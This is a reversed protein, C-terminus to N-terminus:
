YLVQIWFVQLLVCPSTLLNHDHIKHLCKIFHTSLDCGVARPPHLYLRHSIASTAGPSGRSITGPGRETSPPQLKHQQPVCPGTIAIKFVVPCNRVFNPTSEAHVGAGKPFPPNQECLSKDRFVALLKAWQLQLKSGARTKDATAGVSPYCHSPHVASRAIRIPRLLIIKCSYDFGFSVSLNPKFLVLM